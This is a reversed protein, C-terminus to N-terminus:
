PKEERLDHMPDFEAVTFARVIQVGRRVRKRCILVDPEEDANLGLTVTWGFQEHIAAEMRLSHRAEEENLVIPSVHAQGGNQEGVIRWRTV